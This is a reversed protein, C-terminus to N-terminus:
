SCRTIIAGTISYSFGTGGSGLTNKEYQIGEADFINLMETETDLVSIGLWCSSSCSPYSLLDRLNHENQSQVTLTAEPMPNLFDEIDIIELQSDRDRYALQRGDPSWAVNLLRGSNTVTQVLNGTNVDWIRIMGDYSSTALIQSDPSWVVDSLEPVILSFLIEGTTADWVIANESGSVGAIYNGNASWDLAYIVDPASSFTMVDEGSTVDTIYILTDYLSGVVVQTGNPNWDFTSGGFYPEVRQGTRADWLEVGNGVFSSAIINGDPSWLAMSIGQTNTPFSILLEENVVNWIYILSEPSTVGLLRTGDPSWDIWMSTCDMGRLSKVVQGTLASYIPIAFRDLNGHCGVEGGSVAIMTGDPSYEVTIFDTPTQAYVQNEKAMHILLFIISLLLIRALSSKNM